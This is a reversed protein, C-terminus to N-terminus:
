SSIDVRTVLLVFAAGLHLLTLWWCLREAAAWTSDEPDQVIRRWLALFVGLVLLQAGGHILWLSLDIVHAPGM